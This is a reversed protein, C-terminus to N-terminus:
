LANAGRRSFIIASFASAVMSPFLCYIAALPLAATVDQGLWYYLHGTLFLIGLGVVPVFAAFPSMLLAVKRGFLLGAVVAAIAPSHLSIDCALSAPVHSSAPFCTFGLSVSGAVTLALFAILPVLMRCSLQTVVVTRELM